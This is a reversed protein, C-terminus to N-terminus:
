HAFPLPWVDLTDRTLEPDIAGVGESFLRHTVNVAAFLANPGNPCFDRWCTEKNSLQGQAFM